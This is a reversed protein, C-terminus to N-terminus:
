LAEQLFAIETKGLAHPRSSSRLAVLSRIFYELYSFPLLPVHLCTHIHINNNNNNNNNSHMMYLLVSPCDQGM